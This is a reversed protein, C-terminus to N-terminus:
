PTSVNSRLKAEDHSATTAIRSREPNAHPPISTIVGVNSESIQGAEDRDTTRPM